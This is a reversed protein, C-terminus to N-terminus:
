VQSRVRGGLSTSVRGAAELVQEALGDVDAEPDLWASVGIAGLCGSLGFVPAAICRVGSATQGEDVAFGRLRIDELELRLRPDDVPAFGDTVHALQAKGVATRSAPLRAGLASALQVVHRPPDKKAIYVVEDGHLVAFHSTVGLDSTLRALEPEAAGSQDIQRAFATGVEFARVGIRYRSGPCGEAYQEALLASLIGHASSKPIQLARTLAALTMPEASRSLVELMLLARVVSRNLETM